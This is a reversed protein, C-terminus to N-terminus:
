QTTTVSTPATGTTAAPLVPTLVGGAGITYTSVGGGFNAVYVFQGSPDVNVSIPTAGAAYSAGATLVGTVPTITYLTVNNNGANAVYAYGGTNPNIAVSRPASGSLTAVPGTLVGSLSITYSM